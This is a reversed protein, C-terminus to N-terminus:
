VEVKSLLEMTQYFKYKSKRSIRSNAKYSYNNKGYIEIVSNTVFYEIGFKKCLEIFYIRSFEVYKGLKYKKIDEMVLDNNNIREKDKEQQELQKLQQELEKESYLVKKIEIDEVNIMSKKCYMEKYTGKELPTNGNYYYGGYQGKVKIYGKSASYLTYEEKKDSENFYKIFTNYYDRFIEFIRERDKEKEEEIYFDTNDERNLLPIMNDQVRDIKIYRNEELLYSPIEKTTYINYKSETMSYLSYKKEENTKIIAYNWKYCSNNLQLNGGSIDRLLNFMKEEFSMDKCYEWKDYTLPRVNNCASTIYIKNEKEKVSISKVKEYSM